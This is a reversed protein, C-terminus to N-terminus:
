ASRGVAARFVTGKGTFVLPAADHTFYVSDGGRLAHTEGGRAVTVEGATVLVIAPGPRAAIRKEGDVAIRSLRFEPATTLYDITGEPTAVRRAFPVESPAFRLVEALGDVDVHKPTLGGRLVNDSSAMLEIGTGELYAHLNGADLFLAQGPVLEVLNLLLAVVVGVDGPYESALRTTWTAEATFGNKALAGVSEEVARSIAAKEPHAFLGLFVERIKADDPRSGELVEAFPVVAPAETARLVRASAAASRFGSLAWFRTLACLVEPKHNDDKYSRTPADLAINAANERLFGAKAQAANPHAQLSLPKAAALVKLLFPLKPGFTALSEAGLHRAPDQLICADLPRDHGGEHVTSPSSPHAGMWLEAEPGESPTALGRMGAIATRSGWAYAKVSSALRYSSPGNVSEDDCSEASPPASRNTRERFGVRREHEVVCALTM